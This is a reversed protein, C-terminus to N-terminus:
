SLLFTSCCNFFSSFCLYLLNMHSNWAEHLLCREETMRCAEEAIEVPLRRHNEFVAANRARWICWVLNAALEKKRRSEFVGNFIVVMEMAGYSSETASTRCSGMSWGRKWMGVPLPTGIGGYCWLDSLYPKHKQFRSNLNEKMPIGEHLTKWLINKVKPTNKLNWFQFVVEYGSAM